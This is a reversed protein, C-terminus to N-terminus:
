FVQVCRQQGLADACEERSEFSWVCDMWAAAERENVIQPSRTPDSINTPVFRRDNASPAPGPQQMADNCVQVCGRIAVDETLGVPRAGCEEAAYYRNCTSTCTPQCGAAAVSALCVVFLARM